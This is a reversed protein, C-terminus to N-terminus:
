GVSGDWGACFQKARQPRRVQILQAMLQGAPGACKFQNGSTGPMDHAMEALFVLPPTRSILRAGVALYYGGLSTKDYIPIWDDSVDYM